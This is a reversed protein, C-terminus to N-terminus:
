SECFAFVSLVLVSDVRPQLEALGQLDAWGVGSTVFEM